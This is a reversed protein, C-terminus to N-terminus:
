AVHGWVEVHADAPYDITYKRGSMVLETLVTCQEGHMIVGQVYALDYAEDDSNMCQVLDGRSLLMIATSAM